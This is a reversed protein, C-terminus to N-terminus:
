STIFTFPAVVLTRIDFKGRALDHGAKPIDVIRSKGAVLAVAATLEDLTAFPDSAGHIWLNPCTISSFHATRLSEPKGPPHLPYSLLLLGDLCAPDEAALMSAQRGGYSQGGGFIRGGLRKRLRAAAARLGERDAAAGSPHPPGHPRKQRFPLDFRLVTVGSEAFAEAVAVLLPMGSNGGAGHTLVLGTGTAHRPLHLFGENDETM